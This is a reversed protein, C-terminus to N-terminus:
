AIEGENEALTERVRILQRRAEDQEYRLEEIEDKLRLEDPTPKGDLVCRMKSIRDGAEDLYAETARVRGKWVDRDARMNEYERILRKRDEETAQWDSLRRECLRKLDVIETDREYVMERHATGIADRDGQSEAWRQKARDHYIALILVGGFFSVVCALAWWWVPILETM